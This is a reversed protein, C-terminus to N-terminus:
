ECILQPIMRRIDNPVAITRESSLRLVNEGFPLDQVIHLSSIFTLFYELKKRDITIRAGREGRLPIQTGRGYQLQHLNTVSYYYRTLDPIFEAIAKYSVTGTM